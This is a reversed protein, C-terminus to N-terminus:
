SEGVPALIADDLYVDNNQVPFGVISRVFVTVASSEATATVSYERYADYQEIPASWVVAESQSDTGGTPDIGVQLLVDGDEDSHNRDAFTSSWIHAFVSFRLESGPEIGTVRQYVGGDHTAFFSSYVQANDGSRIPSGDRAAPAYEPQLNQFSPMNRTAPVHWPAWGLAVERLPDGEFHVFPSEFGPNTLLNGARALSSPTAQPVEPVIATQTAADIIATATAFLHANAERTQTAYVAMTSNFGVVYTATMQVDSPGSSPTLLGFLLLLLITLCGM